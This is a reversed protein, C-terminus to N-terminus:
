NPTLSLFSRIAMKEVHDTEMGSAALARIVHPVDDLSLENKEAMEKISTEFKLLFKTM